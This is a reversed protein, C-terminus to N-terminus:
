VVMGGTDLDRLSAELTRSYGDINAQPLAFEQIECGGSFLAYDQDVRRVAHPQAPGIFEVREIGPKAVPQFLPKCAPLGVNESAVTAERLQDAQRGGFPDRKKISRQFTAEIFELDKFSRHAFGSM